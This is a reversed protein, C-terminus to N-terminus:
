ACLVHFFHCVSFNALPFAEILHATVVNLVGKLPSYPPPADIHTQSLLESKPFYASKQDIINIEAFPDYFACHRDTTLTTM